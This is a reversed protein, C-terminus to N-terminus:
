SSGMGATCGYCHNDFQIGDNLLQPPATLIFLHTIRQSSASVEELSEVDSVNKADEDFVKSSGIAFGLQNNFDCDYIKGDYGVSVTNTCMLNDTTDLNFNRM